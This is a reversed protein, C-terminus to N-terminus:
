FEDGEAINAMNEFASADEVKKQPSNSNGTSLQPVDVSNILGAAIDQLSPLDKVMNDDLQSSIDPVQIDSKILRYNVRGESM